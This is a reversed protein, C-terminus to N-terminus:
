GDPNGMAPNRSPPNPSAEAPNPNTQEPGPMAERVTDDISLEPEPMTVLANGSGMKRRWFAATVPSRGSPGNPASRRLGDPTCAPPLGAVAIARRMFNGFGHPSYATGSRTPLVLTHSRPWAALARALETDQGLRDIDAWAMRVIKAGRRGTHRLLTYATRERTGPAWRAEFAGVEAATWGRRHGGIGLKIGHTPDDSRWGRAIACRMLASLKKLLDAAAAPTEASRRLLRQIHRRHLAEVSLSAFDQPQVLRRLVRDYARQTDPALGAYAKSRRYLDVLDKITRAPREPQQRLKWQRTKERRAAEYAARFIPTGEIDPLRVHPVVGNRDVVRKIHKLRAPSTRAPPHPEEVDSSRAPEQAAEVVFETCSKPQAEASRQASPASPPPANAAAKARAEAAELSFAWLPENSRAQYYAPDIDHHPSSYMVCCWKINEHTLLRMKEMTESTPLNLLRTCKRATAHM